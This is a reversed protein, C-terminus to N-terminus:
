RMAASPELWVRTSASPVWSSDGSQCASGAGPGGGAVAVVLGVAGAAALPGSPGVAGLVGFPLVPDGPEM